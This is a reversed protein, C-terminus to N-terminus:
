YEEEEDEVRDATMVTIGLHRQKICQFFRQPEFSVVVVTDDM